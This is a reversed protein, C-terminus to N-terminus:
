ADYRKKDFERKLDKNGRPNEDLLRECTLRAYMEYAKQMKVESREIGGVLIITRPDDCIMESLTEKDVKELTHETQTTEIYVFGRPSGEEHRVNMRTLAIEKM